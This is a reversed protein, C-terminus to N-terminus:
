SKRGLKGRVAGFVAFMERSKFFYSCVTFIALGVGITLVLFFLRDNFPAENNWPVIYGVIGIAGAMILSSLIIRSVSVFFEKELFRGIRRQLMVYLVIVNVASAISTALALGGHKLPFMLIVGMVMNVLLAVVAIKVPTKTDQLSYFAPVIVRVLSFAWLGVAYFLLAESTYITKMVDFAGRQFLVSIIPVRLVILAVMAPITLFLIL